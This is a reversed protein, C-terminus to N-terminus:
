NSLHNGSSDSQRKEYLIIGEKEVRQKVDDSLLEWARLDVSFNTSRLLFAYAKLFLGRDLGKIVLDLDSHRTFRQNKLVSGFLYLKQYPFHSTLISSLEKTEGLAKERLREKRKKRQKILRSFDMEEFEQARM